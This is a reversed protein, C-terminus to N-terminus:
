GHRIFRRLAEEVDPILDLDGLKSREGPAMAIGTGLKDRRAWIEECQLLWAMKLDAPLAVSDTPQTTPYVSDTPEATEWWYGGTWTFRLESHASGQIDVLEVLGASGDLSGVVDPLTLATWVDSFSDRIEISTLTEIPYRPLVYVLRNASAQWTDGATRQWSRNAVREFRAAVGLGLNLMTADYAGDGRLAPALLQRKLTDLNALGANM